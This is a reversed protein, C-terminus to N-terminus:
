YVPQIRDFDFVFDEEVDDLEEGDDCVSLIDERLLSGYETPNSPLSHSKQPMAWTVLSELWKTSADADQCDPRKHLLSLWEEEEPTLKVNSASLVQKVMKKPREIGADALEEEDLEEGLEQMAQKAILTM